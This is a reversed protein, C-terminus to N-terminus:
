LHKELTNLMKTARATDAEAGVKRFLDVASKFAKLSRPLRGRVKELIGLEYYTEGLNLLNNQDENLRLSSLFYTEALDFQKLHRHIMGMMKYADAIGHESSIRMLHELAQNCFVLALSHDDLYFYANAKGLKAIGLMRPSQVKESTSISMDFQRVAERYKSMSLYSMGMNHYLEALRNLDGVSQFYAQARRYHNLADDWNGLINQIIGLNMLVTGTM